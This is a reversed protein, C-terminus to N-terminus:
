DGPLVRVVKMAILERLLDMSKAELNDKEFEIYGLDRFDTPFTVGKEKLIVIRRGFLLSAAGLEYVVNERPRIVENGDKDQFVEDASFIFIGASCAKMLDGVKESIPRGLNPEDKAVVYPIDLEKLIKQLQDLPTRNRGHAIFFQRQAPSSRPTEHPEGTDSAPTPTAEMKEKPPAQEEPTAEEKTIETSPPQAEEIDTAPRGADLTVWLSDSVTRILGAHRGNEILMAAVEESWESAVLFPERELTNKLFDPPPLKNNNFHLLIQDFVPIGRIATREAELREEESTPKTYREGLKTLEILESNYNGEVLGYRNAAMIMYRFDSSGPSRGMAEALLIRNMAKGAGYDKLATAIPAADEITMPPHPRAPGRPM